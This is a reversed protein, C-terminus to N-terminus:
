IWGFIRAVGSAIAAFLAVERIIIFKSTHGGQHGAVWKEMTETRRMHQELLKNYQKLLVSHREQTRIIKILAKTSDQGM